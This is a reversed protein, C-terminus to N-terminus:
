RDDSESWDPRGERPIVSADARASVEMGAGILSTILAPGRVRIEVFVTPDVLVRGTVPHHLPSTASANLVEARIGNVSGALANRELNITATQIAQVRAQDVVLYREGAALRELDLEQVGALAALDAIAVVTSKRIFWRGVDAVLSLCVLLLPLSLAVWAIVAGREAGREGAVRKM